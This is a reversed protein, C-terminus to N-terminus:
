GVGSGAKVVIGGQFNILRVIGVVIFYFTDFGPQGERLRIIFKDEYIM